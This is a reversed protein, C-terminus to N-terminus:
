GTFSFFAICHLNGKCSLEKSVIPLCPLNVRSFIIPPLLDISVTLLQQELAEEMVLQRAQPPFFDRMAVRSMSYVKDGLSQVNNPSM